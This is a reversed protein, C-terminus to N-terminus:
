GEGRASALATDMAAVLESPVPPDYNRQAAESMIYERAAALAEYLKPASAILNANHICDIGESGVVLWSRCPAMIDFYGDDEEIAWPGPTFKTESSM